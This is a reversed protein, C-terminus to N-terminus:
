KLPGIFKAEVIHKVEGNALVEIPVIEKEASMQNLPMQLVLQNKFAGEPSLIVKRTSSKIEISPDQVRFDIKITDQSKNQLHIEYLNKITGDQVLFSTGRIRLLTVQLDSQLILAMCFGGFILVLLLSYAKVRNTWEFRKKEKIGNESVFRILGKELGVGEMMHDCVDICATCNVCELQTGNRIDIGTPCVDVCQHCDICDGKNAESRVEGKKFKARSEGRKYDYAVVMSNQDLLVGQLRGYPCISTCVQERLYSFVFMFVASFLVISFFGGIHEQFPDTQIEWLRDAGIIYALFTNSIAFSILYFVTYKLSKKRIKEGNWPQKDLKRQHSADGEIWYEIRRFVMEMFITQPCVWGCFLRGFIITFFVVFVVGSIMLLAIMWMDQPWFVKGFLVFKRELLNFLLFQHGNVKLHPALFLFALLSYAVVQRYNFFRGKVKKPFIWTRKGQENVTAIKDRFDEQDKEM